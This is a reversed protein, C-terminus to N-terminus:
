TTSEDLAMDFYPESGTRDTLCSQHAKHSRLLMGPLSDNSHSSARPRPADTGVWDMDFVVARRKRFWSTAQGATAFWAGRSKMDQVLDRYCADWVREPALSRDHWNITLCGGLDVANDVMRRILTTAQRSSLGLYAPYFLATDMVHMPLELLQTTQLSKYVQTTGARYGVTERYGITSDYSAGAQELAVPSQQDYYLWHMRVGIESVGTLRRLEEFEEVGKSSDAWADIGHLGVENGAALIKRITGAIDTASYRSARLKSALGEFASGPYNKFPIVFFTSCLGEELERYRDEFNRWFDNAFGMHVFPLKLVAAWNALLNRVPIRGRFFNSLSGFVARYLFGFMTHDWKHQVISPHDVDHTLCAIFRYGNPVPPVEVLSVGSTVILDRLLAIHLDLTPIDAYATPQGGTLLSSVEGFLDYGIRVVVGDPSKYQQMATQRSEEDVLLDTGKERFTIGDGYIPLRAGRHLLMRNRKRSTIEINGPFDFAFNGSSYILVLKAANKASDGSGACLVVEYQRHSQYFEWPTKFLEFFESIVGHEASHAIVGILSTEKRSPPPLNQLIRRSRVVTLNLRHFSASVDCVMM